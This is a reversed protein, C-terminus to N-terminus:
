LHRVHPTELSHRLPTLATLGHIEARYRDRDPALHDICGRLPERRRARRTRGLRSCLSRRATSRALGLGACVDRDCAQALSRGFGLPSLKEALSARRAEGIMDGDHAGGGLLEGGGLPDM